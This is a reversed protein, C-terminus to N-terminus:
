TARSKRTLELATKRFANSRAMDAEYAERVQPRASLYAEVEQRQADTLHRSKFFFADLKWADPADVLTPNSLRSM